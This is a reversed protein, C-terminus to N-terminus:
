CTELGFHRQQADLAAGFLVPGLMGGGFGASAILSANPFGSRQQSSTPHVDFSLSRNGVGNLLIGM